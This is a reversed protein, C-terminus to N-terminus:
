LYFQIQWFALLFQRGIHHMQSSAPEHVSIMSLLDSGWSVGVSVHMKFGETMFLAGQGHQQADAPLSTAVINSLQAEATEM